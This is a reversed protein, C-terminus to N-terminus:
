PERILIVCLFFVDLFSSFSLVQDFSVQVKEASAVSQPVSDLVGGWNSNSARAHHMCRWVLLLLDAVDAADIIEIIEITSALPQPLWGADAVLIILRIVQMRDLREEKFVQLVLAPDKNFCQFSSLPLLLYCYGFLIELRLSFDFLM